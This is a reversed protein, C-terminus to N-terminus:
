DIGARLSPLLAPVLRQVVLDRAPQWTSPLRDTPPPGPQFGPDGTTVIVASAAPVTTVHQGAWGGAFPGFDDIWVLYGYPRNEPPGGLSRATLMQGAFAPDLLQHGRWIGRQAWLQGLAALASASLRLHAFGYSFGDPDEPWHWDTIGLPEFLRQSAYDSLSMDLLRQLAAGVLHAAGNDYVFRAGPESMTPASAIRDVWGGPLAMVEDIEYPGEVASGRTMTLLHRLSQGASPTHGIPLVTDVPRDLDAVLGERVAIGMLTSVVSKTVSFVDAVVPGQYHADYVVRGGVAVLFHSVHSYELRSRLAADVERCAADLM